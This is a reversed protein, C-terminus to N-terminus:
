SSRRSGKAGNCILCRTALNGPESTGGRALPIVHDATLPNTASGRHGCDECWPRRRIQAAAARRWAWSSRFRRAATVRRPRAVDSARLSGDPNVRYRPM